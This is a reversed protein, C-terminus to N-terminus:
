KSIANILIFNVIKLLNKAFCNFQEQANLFFGDFLGIGYVM